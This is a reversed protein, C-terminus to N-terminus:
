GVLLAAIGGLCLLHDRWVSRALRSQESPPDTAAALRVATPVTHLAARGRPVTM